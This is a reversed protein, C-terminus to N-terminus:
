HKSVIAERSIREVRKIIAEVLIRHFEEENAIEKLVTNIVEDNIIPTMLPYITKSYVEENALNEAQSLYTLVEKFEDIGLRTLMHLRSKLRLIPRLRLELFDLCDVDSELHMLVSLSRLFKAHNRSERAIHRLIIPILDDFGILDAITEYLNAVEEEFAISCKIVTALAGVNEDM